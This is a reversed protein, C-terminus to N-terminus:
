TQGTQNGPAVLCSTVGLHVQVQPHQSSFCHSQAPDPALGSQETGPLGLFGQQCFTPPPALPLSLLPRGEWCQAPVTLSHPSWKERGRGQWHAQEAAAPVRAGRGGGRERGVGETKGGESERSAQSPHKSALDSNSALKPFM